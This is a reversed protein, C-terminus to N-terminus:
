NGIQVEAYIIHFHLSNNNHYDKEDSMLILNIILNLIKELLLLFLLNETKDKLIPRNKVADANIIITTNNKSGSKVKIQLQNNKM